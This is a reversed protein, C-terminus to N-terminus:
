GRSRGACMEWLKKLARSDLVLTGSKELEEAERDSMATGFESLTLQQEETGASLCYHIGSWVLMGAPPTALAAIGDLARPLDQFRFWEKKRREMHIFVLMGGGEPYAEIEKLRELSIGTAGCAERVLFLVERLGMEGGAMGRRHLEKRSIYLVLQTNGIVQLDM